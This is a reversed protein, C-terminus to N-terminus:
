EFIYWLFTVILYNWSHAVEFLVSLQLMIWISIYLRGVLPLIIILRHNREQTWFSWLCVSYFNWIWANCLGFTVTFLSFIPQGSLARSRGKSTSKIYKRQFCFYVSSNAWSRLFLCCSASVKCWWFSKISGKLITETIEHFLLGSYTLFLHFLFSSFFIAVNAFCLIKCFSNVFCVLKEGYFQHLLMAAVIGSDPCLQRLM